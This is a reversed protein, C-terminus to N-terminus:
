IGFSSSAPASTASIQINSPDNPDTNALAVPALPAMLPAMGTSPPTGTTLGAAAGTKAGSAALQQSRLAAAQAATRAALIKYVVIIAVLSGGAIWAIRVQKKTINM